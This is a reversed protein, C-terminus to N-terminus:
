KRTETAIGTLPTGVLAALREWALALRYEVARQRLKAAQSDAMGHGLSTKMELEYEARAKELAWDRYAANQAAARREAGRLQIIEERTEYLAQRLSLVLAEHRARLLRAQAAERDHRAQRPGDGLLPWAFNIGIRAEDRTYADRSFAALESELELSPATEAHIAQQRKGVAEIQRRLAVLRPNGDLLARALPEFEPLPRDNSALPPDLLEDPMDGPRNMATALAVRKERARRQTDDRRMRSEQFRAELEALAVESLDGLHRRDKAHDWAVYAVAMYENDAAYQLDVLLVDFYRAMLAIRRQALTETVLVEGAASELRAAAEVADARGGDWLPKRLNLRLAHDPEFRATGLANHGGRLSGELTLRLDDLSAASAAEARALDLSAQAQDLDPHATGIHALVHELTLPAATAPVTWILGIAFLLAAARPM